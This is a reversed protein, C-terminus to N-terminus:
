VQVLWLTFTSEILAAVFLVIVLMVSIPVLAKVFARLQERAQLSRSPSFISLFMKLLLMGLRLGLACAIIIAPLELIGHPVIAKIVFLWSEKQGAAVAVYGLVLGNVILFFLPFIGFLVGMVIVLLSKSANNWFILWFLSWQQNPKEALTDTIRKLAELQTNIFAQFQESYLAGMLMGALFVLVSAIFYHKMLKLQEVAHNWKM